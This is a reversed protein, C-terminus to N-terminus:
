EIKIKEYLNSDNLISFFLWDGELFPHNINNTIVMTLENTSLTWTEGNKFAEVSLVGDCYIQSKNNTRFYIQCGYTQTNYLSIDIAGKGIGVVRTPTSYTLGDDIM